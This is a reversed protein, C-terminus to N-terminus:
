DFVGGMPGDGGKGTEDRVERELVEGESVEDDFFVGGTGGEEGGGGGDAGGRGGEGGGDGGSSGGGGKSM